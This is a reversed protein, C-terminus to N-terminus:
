RGAGVDKVVLRRKAVSLSLGSEDSLAALATGLKVNQVTLDVNPRSSAAYDVGDLKADRAVQDLVAPLPADKVSLSVRVAAEPPAAGGECGVHIAKGDDTYTLHLKLALADLVLSVPTNKLQLDIRRGKVCADAVIDRGGVDALLRLVHLVDAQKLDLDVARDHPIPPAANADAATDFAFLGACALAIAFLRM